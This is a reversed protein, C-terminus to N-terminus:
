LHLGSRASATSSEMRRAFSRRYHPVGDEDGGFQLRQKRGRV